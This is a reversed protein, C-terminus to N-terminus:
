ASTLEFTSTVKPGLRLTAVVSCYKSDSLQVAVSIAGPDLNNGGVIHNIRLSTIPKPWDDGGGREWTVEIKYSTVEQRKKKLIAIVDMASCAAASALLSELPTPGKGSGGADPTADMVFSGGSPALAEFALGGVWSVKVV